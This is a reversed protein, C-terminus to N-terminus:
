AFLMADIDAITMRREKKKALQFRRIEEGLKAVVSDVTQKPKEYEIRTQATAQDKGLFYNCNKKLEPIDCPQGQDCGHKKECIRFYDGLLSYMKKREEFDALACSGINQGFKQYFIDAVKNVDTPKM